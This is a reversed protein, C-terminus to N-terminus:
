PPSEVRSRDGGNHWRGPSQLGSRPRFQVRGTEPAETSSRRYGPQAPRRPFSRFGAFWRLNTLTITVVLYGEVSLREPERGSRGKQQRSERAEYLLLCEDM